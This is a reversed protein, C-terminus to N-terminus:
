GLSKDTYVRGGIRDRAELVIVNKGNDILTSAAALGSAGAGIVIVDYDLTTASTAHYLLLTSFALLFKMTKTRTKQQRTFLADYLLPM